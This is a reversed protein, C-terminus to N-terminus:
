GESLIDLIVEPIKGMDTRLNLQYYPVDAVGQGTQRIYRVQKYSKAVKETSDTSQGDVAIIEYPEYTQSLVSEIAEALFREGNKVAIIVSVLPKEM